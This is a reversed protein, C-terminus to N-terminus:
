HNDCHPTFVPETGADYIKTEYVSHM